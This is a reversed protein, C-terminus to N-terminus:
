EPPLTMIVHTEGSTRTLGRYRVVGAILTPPGEDEPVGGLGIVSGEFGSSVQQFRLGAPSKYVVGLMGDVQNQPLVLEQVGDGDLDISLPIAEPQYYFSRGGREVYREVEIRPLGGGVASSSRWLEEYGSTIRLRSREDIFALVPRDKGLVNTFAAGTARFSEPVVANQEKVLTGDRLAVREVQRKAFFTESSWRQAWLAQKVGAATEDVALLFRDVHDVLAVPRGDQLGVVMSNLGFKPDYRNVVVQLRGDGLLEALQVSFVRGLTRAYYSWEPELALDVLRYVWIRDGDSIALRPIRDAPTVAVDMSVAPYGFRGIEKLPISPGSASYQGPDVDGGLLRALLSRPKREPTPGQFRDSASYRGPPAPRISAPVFLATAVAPEQRGGTFLRVEIFPKREVQKYHLVLLNEVQFARLAEGVARGGAFEEPGIRAQRLWLSIQDGLLVNFRRSRLLGEYIENTAAEVLNDKVGPGALALLTLNIRGAPTRVRDGPVVDRGDATAVSYGDFVQTVLARGLAQETRGLVQGTRPHKIERGERYIEVAVGPVAGSRRGASLVISTGEVEVVDAQLDPFAALAQDILASLSVPPPGPAEPPAQALSVAPSLVIAVLILLSFGSAPRLSM